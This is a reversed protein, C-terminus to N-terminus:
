GSTSNQGDTGINGKTASQDVSSAEDSTSNEGDTGINGKTASQDVSSAVDSTSNEGDTGINGKTASQDVSSAEDSTNNEGDTGINGKTASQDVSSAVDSTSNEGDTGINGKTASQDVSSAVDSTSNEGDTGINGKTASQDVSAAEDVSSTSELERTPSDNQLNNNTSEGKFVQPYPRAEKEPETMGITVNASAGDTKASSEEYAGPSANTRTSPKVTLHQDVTSSAGDVSSEDSSLGLDTTSTETVTTKCDGQRSSVGPSKQHETRDPPGPGEEGASSEEADVLPVGCFPCFKFVEHTLSCKPCKM